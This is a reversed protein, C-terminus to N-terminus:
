LPPLEAFQPLGDDPAYWAAKGLWEVHTGHGRDRMDRGGVEASAEPRREALRGM